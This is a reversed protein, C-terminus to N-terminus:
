SVYSWRGARDDRRIDDHKSHHRDKGTGFCNGSRVVLDQQVKPCVLADSGHVALVPANDRVDKDMETQQMDEHVHPNEGDHARVDLSDISTEFEQKSVTEGSDNSREGADVHMRIINRGACRSGNKSYKSQPKTKQEGVFLYKMFLATTKKIM